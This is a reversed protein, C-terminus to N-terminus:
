ATGHRDYDLSNRIKGGIKLVARRLPDCVDTGPSHIKTRRKLLGKRVSTSDDNFPMKARAHERPGSKNIFATADEAAPVLIRTRDTVAAAIQAM